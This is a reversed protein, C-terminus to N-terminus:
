LIAKAADFLHLRQNIHSNLVPSVLQIVERLRAVFKIEGCPRHLCFQCGDFDCLVLIKYRTIHRIINDRLNSESSRKTKDLCSFVNSAKDFPEVIAEWGKLQHATQM